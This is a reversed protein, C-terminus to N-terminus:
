NFRGLVDMKPVGFKNIKGMKKMMKKMTMFQKLLINIEQVSRGSGNAIRRRRSGNILNPHHREYVTMSNIIAETWDMQQDDLNLQKLVKQNAGPMMGIFQKISGLGKLQKLHSRFDDLTFTNKNIKKKLDLADKEDILNQAKEVLSVVDGFGLIRNAIRQPNFPLLGDIRESTGIFKIPKGTVELISLAAGGRSDGDMKTLIIGTLPLSNNFALASTVADQGTMGDAVFLIECPKVFDNITQIEIMMEDDIHLRGASDIIVVDKKSSKAQELGKSCINAVNSNVDEYVPINIEKGVTKLQEIAAPRYIDAAILSVSRGEKKLLYALKGATTTKGAGQLGALLIVSPSKDLNLSATNQGLLNILEDNIIKIFQQGPKISKIVKSGQAKKKVRNIFNKATSFNVDAELLTRRVERVTTNINNDTIIGLGRLDRFISEFRQTIQGFM